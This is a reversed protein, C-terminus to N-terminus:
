AARARVDAASTAAITRLPAIVESPVEERLRLMAEHWAQRMAAEKAAECTPEHGYAGSTDWVWDDDDHFAAVTLEVSAITEDDISIIISAGEVTEVIARVGFIGAVGPDKFWSENVEIEIKQM